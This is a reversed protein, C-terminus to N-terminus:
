PMRTISSPDFLPREQGEDVFIAHDPWRLDTIFYRVGHSSTGYPGCIPDPVEGAASPALAEPDTPTLAYFTKTRPAPRLPIPQWECPAEAELHGAAILTGTLADIGARPPLPFGRVAVGTVMDGRRTVFAGREDDWQVQWVTENFVCTETWLGIGGGERWHWACAGTETQWGPMPPRTTDALLAASTTLVIGFATLVIRIM